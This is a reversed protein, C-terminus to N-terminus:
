KTAGCKSCKYGVVEDEERTEADHHVTKYTADHHVTKYTADHHVTQYVADHHTTGVQEQWTIHYYRSPLDHADMLHAGFADSNAFQDERAGCTKCVDTGRWEYVPEDYAEQVCVQEDWAPQDVVQDDWAAKDVVQEDYAAKVTVTKKKTVPKWDHSCTTATTGSNSKNSSSSAPKSVNNSSTGSNTNGKASTSANSSGSNSAPKATSATASSSSGSQSKSSTSQSGSNSSTDDKKSTTANSGDKKEESSSKSSDDKAKETNKEEVIVKFSKDSKNGETDQATVKVTYTGTKSLDLKSDDLVYSPKGEKLKTSEKLTGDTEDKVSKVNDSADYKEGLAVTVSTKDFTIVPAKTDQNSTTANSSAVTNSSCGVLVLSLGVTLLNCANKKLKNTMNM